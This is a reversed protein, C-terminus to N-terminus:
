KCLDLRCCFLKIFIHCTIVIATPDWVCPPKLDSFDTARHSYNMLSIIGELRQQIYIQHSSNSRLGCALKALLRRAVTEADLLRKTIWASSHGILPTMLIYLLHTKIAATDAAPIVFRNTSFSFAVRLPDLVSKTRQNFAKAAHSIWWLLSVCRRTTLMGFIM